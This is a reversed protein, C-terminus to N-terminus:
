FMGAMARKPRLLARINWDLPFSRVQYGDVGVSDAQNSISAMFLARAQLYQAERYNAPVVAGLALAPAYTECQTRATSLLEYLIVDDLPADAWRRRAQDLTLWGDAGQAVIRVPEADLIVGGADTFQIALEYVGAVPFVSTSPWTLDLHQAHITSPIVAVIDGDPGFLDATHGDFEHVHVPNGAEDFFDVHTPSTPVNGAWLSGLDADPIIAM